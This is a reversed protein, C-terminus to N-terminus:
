SRAKSANNERQDLGSKIKRMFDKQCPQNTAESEIKQGLKWGVMTKWGRIEPRQGCVQLIQYRVRPRMSIVDSM